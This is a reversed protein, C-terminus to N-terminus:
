FGTGVNLVKGQWPISEAPSLPTHGYRDRYVKSPRKRRKSVEGKQIVVDYDFRQGDIDLEGFSAPKVQM